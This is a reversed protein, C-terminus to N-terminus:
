SESAPSQVPTSKSATPRPSVSRPAEAAGADMSDAEPTVAAMTVAKIASAAQTPEGRPQPPLEGEYVLPFPNEGPNELEGLLPATAGLRVLAAHALREFREQVVELEQRPIALWQERSAWHILLQGEEKEGDWHLERGLFGSQRNLWPEWSGQEAELWAIRTAAPVQVRLHEVVAVDVQGEAGAVSSLSGEIAPIGAFDLPVPQLNLDM